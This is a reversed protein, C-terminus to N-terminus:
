YRGVLRDPLERLRQNRQNADIEDQHNLLPKLVTPKKFAAQVRGDPPETGTTVVVVLWSFQGHLLRVTEAFDATPAKRANIILYHVRQDLDSPLIRDEEDEADFFEQWVFGEWERFQEGIQDEGTPMRGGVSKMRYGRTACCTARRIYLEATNVKRANLLVTMDQPPSKVAPLAEGPPSKVEPLVGRAAEADIWTPELCAILKKLTDTSLSPAVEDVAHEMRDPPAVLFQHALFLSGGNLQPLHKEELKLATAAKVLRGSRRAEDLYESLAELWAAMPDNEAPPTPLEAFRQLVKDAISLADHPAGRQPRAFQFPRLEELGAAKVASTSLDGLLVPVVALPSGLAKRWLLINVERRVWDSKLAKENILFVAGHCRALWDVIEPRWENGPPIGHQDVLPTFKKAALGEKITELVTMAFEDGRASHSIFVDRM